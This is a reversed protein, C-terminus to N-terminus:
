SPGSIQLFSPRGRLCAAAALPCGAPAVALDAAFGAADFGFDLAFGGAALGAAFDAAALLLAPPPRSADAACALRGRFRM